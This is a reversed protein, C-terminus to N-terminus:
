RVNGQEGKFQHEKKTNIYGLINKFEKSKVLSDSDILYSTFPLTHSKSCCFRHELVDKNLERWGNGNSPHQLELYQILNDVKKIIAAHQGIAFYYEKGEKMTSFLKHASNFDDMSINTKAEINPFKTLSDITNRMSFIMRSNGGRYDLVDLGAKNGIYALALSSCSGCTLDGGSIRKIIEEESVDSELLQPKNYEVDAYNLARVLNRYESNFINKELNFESKESFLNDWFMKADNIDDSGNYKHTEKFGETESLPEETRVESFKIM